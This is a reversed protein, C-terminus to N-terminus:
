SDNIFCHGEAYGQGPNTIRSGYVRLESITGFLDDKGFKSVFSGLIVKGSAGQGIWWLLRDYCAWM